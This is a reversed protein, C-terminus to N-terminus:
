HQVHERVCNWAWRRLAPIAGVEIRPPVSELTAELVKLFQKPTCSAKTLCKTAGAKWAEEVLKGLFANSFVIVPLQKTAPQSRIHKLVEVGNVKPLQLDLVVVDPTNKKLCDLAAEGDMAVEVEYGETQFRGRYIRIIMLDDEVFLIKKM